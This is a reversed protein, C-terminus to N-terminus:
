FIYGLALRLGLTTDGVTNSYKKGTASTYNQFTWNYGFGFAFEFNFHKGINRRLGYMPMISIAPYIDVNKSTIGFGPQFGTYLSLYNGSNGDIRKEKQNRRYLNYYCRPEIGLYPSVAWKVSNDIYSGNGSWGFGWALESRLAINTTLKTENYVSLPFILTQVGWLNKEVSVEQAHGKPVFLIFALIIIILYRM